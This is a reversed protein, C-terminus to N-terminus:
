QLSNYLLLNPTASAGSDKPGLYIANPTADRKLRDSMQQTTMNQRSLHAAILGAVHPAAMSTGSIRKIADDATNWTSTVDSGPAIVDVCKGWNSYSARNDKIDSAAVVNAASVSAPSSSCADVNSNGAAVAFHIGQNIAAQVVRDLATNQDGGLSLSAVSPKYGLARHQQMVYQVGAIVDSSSGSGEDSLVKVARVRAKKAVGWRKGAITGACHTGHGNGDSLKYGGFQAAMEVRNEFDDHSARAGTDLVYVTVGEGNPLSYTYDYTVAAASQGNTSIKPRQEIRQLGWPATGKQTYGQPAADTQVTSPQQADTGMNVNPLDAVVAEEIPQISLVTDIIIEQVEERRSVEDYIKQSLKASFGHLTMEEYVYGIENAKFAADPESEFRKKLDDVFDPVPVPDKLIIIYGKSTEAASSVPRQLNSYKNAPTDTGNSAKDSSLQNDKHSAPVAGSSVEPILLFSLQTALVVLLYM